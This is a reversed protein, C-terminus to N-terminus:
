GSPRLSTPKPQNQTQTNLAILCALSAFFATLIGPEFIAFDIINHIIFGLIGCFLAISTLHTNQLDYEKPTTQLAKVFLAIGVVFAAAPAVYLSFLVYIKDEFTEVPTQPLIFPRLIILVISTVVACLIALNRFSDNSTTELKINDDLSSRWLPAFIIIFFGLLALPGYQTLISLLSAIPTLSPKLPPLLKISPIIPHSTEAASAPSHITSSYKPPHTGTNGESLCPIAAPFNVLNTVM